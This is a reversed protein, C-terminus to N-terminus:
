KVEIEVLHKFEDPHLDIYEPVISYVDFRLPLVPNM